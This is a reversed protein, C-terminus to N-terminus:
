KGKLRKRLKQVAAAGDLFLGVAAKAENAVTELTRLTALVEPRKVPPGKVPASPARKPPGLCKKRECGIYRWAGSPKHVEVFLRPSPEHDLWLIAGNCRPCVTPRAVEKM